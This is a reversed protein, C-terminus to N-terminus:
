RHLASAVKPELEGALTRYGEPTLHMGDSQHPLGNLMQGPVMVVRIHRSAAAAKISAVNDQTDGPNMGQRADNGGPQLVLVRTDPSLVSDLRARMGETTDGSVGANTVSVNLGKARLLKELQAPFDEGREVGKGFTNSAGLAVVEAARSTGAFVLLPALLALSRSTFRTASSGTCVKRRLM